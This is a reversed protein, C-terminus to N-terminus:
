QAAQLGSSAGTAALARAQAVLELFERRYENGDNGASGLSAVMEWDTDGKHESNRLLMGFAAVAAAFKFDKTADKLRGGTDAVSASVMDSEDGDPKKYRIKITLMDSSSIASAEAQYRLPDVGRSRFPQGVPVIEYLATVTHGAGIEGADKKDDNFDEKKLLRNEYGILRFAQVKQPNFEVQVKV